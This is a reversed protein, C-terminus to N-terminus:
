TNLPLDVAEGEPADKGIVSKTRKHTKIFSKLKEKGKGPIPSKDRLHKEYPRVSSYNLVNEGVEKRKQIKSLINQHQKEVVIDQSKDRIKRSSPLSNDIQQKPIIESSFM